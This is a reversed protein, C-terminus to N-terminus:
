FTPTCIYTLTTTYTGAPTLGQVDVIYTSTYIQADTGVTTGSPYGSTAVVETTNPVFYYTDATNYNASALAFYSVGDSAPTPLAGCNYTTGCGANTTTTNAALNMGFQDTGHTPTSPTTSIATISNTGSTLTPGLLTIQYGSVANTSAAMQSTAVSTYNPSFLEQFSVSGSTATTCDPVGGTESITGGTCFVLSEPMQGNLVVPTATSAAVNGQDIISGTGTPGGVASWTTIRVYFSLNAVNPNVIGDLEVVFATNTSPTFGTSDNLIPDLQTATTALTFGSLFASTGTGIAAGTTDMAYDTNLNGCTSDAQECYQFSISYIPTSTDAAPITFQFLNTVTGSPDSGGVQSAAPLKTDTELTLSRPELTNAAFTHSPFLFAGMSSVLLLAVALYLLSKLKKVM